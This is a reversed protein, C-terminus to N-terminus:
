AAVAVIRQHRILFVDDLVAGDIGLARGRGGAGAKCGVAGDLLQWCEICVIEDHDNTGAAGAQRADAQQFRQRRCFDDRDVDRALLAGGGQRRAGIDRDVARRLIRQRIDRFGARPCGRATISKTPM